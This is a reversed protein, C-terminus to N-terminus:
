YLYKHTHTNTHKHTCSNTDVSLTKKEDVVIESKRWKIWKMKVETKLAEVM